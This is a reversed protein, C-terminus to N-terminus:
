KVAKGLTNGGELGCANRGELDVVVVISRDSLFVEDVEDRLHKYEDEKAQLQM